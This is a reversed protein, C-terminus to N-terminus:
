RWRFRTSDDDPVLDSFDDSGTTACAICKGDYKISWANILYTKHNALVKREWVMQQRFGHGSSKCEINNTGPYGQFWDWLMTRITARAEGVHLYGVFVGEAAPDHSFLVEYCQVPMEHDPRLVVTAWLNLSPVMPVMVMEDRGITYNHWLSDADDGDKILAEIHECWYQDCDDCKLYGNRRVEVNTSGVTLVDLPAM